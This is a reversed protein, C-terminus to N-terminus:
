VDDVDDYMVVMVQPLQSGRVTNVATTVSMRPAAPAIRMVGDNAYFSYCYCTIIRTFLYANLIAFQVLSHM